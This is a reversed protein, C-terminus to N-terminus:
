SLGDILERIEAKYRALHQAYQNGLSFNLERGAPALRPNIEIWHDFAISIKGHGVSGKGGIYPMRAFEVLTVCFAEFELPSVDDLSIEWFFQTGAALTEVFYRMQQRQGTKEVIEEGDQAARRRQRAEGEMLLRAEPAILQRLNEDKEDDRRTYAEM